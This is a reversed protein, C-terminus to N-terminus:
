RGARAVEWQDLFAVGDGTRGRPGRFEFRVRVIGCIADAWTRELVEVNTISGRYGFNKVFWRLCIRYLHGNKKGSISSIDGLRM